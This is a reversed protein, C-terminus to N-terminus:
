IGERDNKFQIQNRINDIADDELTAFIGRNIADLLASNINTQREMSALLLGYIDNSALSGGTSGGDQYQPIGGKLIQDIFGVHRAILPNRMGYDPIFYERGRENILAIQTGPPTLGAGLRGTFPINNYMKGDKAGKVTYRGDFYQPVEATLLAKAQAISGLVTGISAAVKIALDIPTISTSAAASIVSSIATATDFAIQAFAALKQFELFDSQEDGFAKFMTTFLTGLQRFAQERAQLEKQRSAAIQANKDKETQVEKANNEEITALIDADWKARIAATDIGLKEAQELLALYHRDLEIIQREHATALELELEDQFAKRDNKLLEEAEKQKRRKEARRQEENDLHEQEIEAIENDRLRILAAVEESEQSTLRIAEDIQTQYKQRVRELEQEDKSLQNIAAEEDLAAIAERLRQLEEISKDVVKQSIKAAKTAPTTEETKIPDPNEDKNNNNDFFDGGLFGDQEFQKKMEEREKRLEVALDLQEKMAASESGISKQRITSIEQLDAFDRMYDRAKTRNNLILNQAEQIQQEISLTRDLQFGYKKEVELVKEMGEKRLEYRSAYADAAAATAKEIKEDQKQLVIKALYQNNVDKLRDALQKNSLKETDINKLFNPYKKQIESILKSRTAQNENTKDTVSNASILSSVLTNLETKEEQLQQSLPIEIYDTVTGILNAFAPVLNQNLFDAARQKALSLNEEFKLQKSQANTLANTYDIVSDISTEMNAFSEIFKQSIDEGQSGFVNSTVEQLKKGALETDRMKQAVLKLAGETKLSGDNLNNFLKTTFKEGFAAELADKTGKAQANIRLGFEKVADVGRDSFVGDKTAKIAIAIYAEASYGAKEFQVPYEKLQELFDGDIDAGALFGKEILETSKELSINMQKSLANAALIIDKTEKKYTKSIAEITATVRKLEGGSAGTARAVEAQLKGSQFIAQTIYGVVAVIAAGAAAWGSKLFSFLGGAEAKQKKWTNSLGRLRKKHSAVAANAKDLEAAKKNYKDSGITMQALENKIKRQEKLISKYQNAVEKGNIFITLRRKITTNAM